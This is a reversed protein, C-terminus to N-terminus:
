TCLFITISTLFYLLLVIYGGGCCFEVVDDINVKKLLIKYVCQMTVNFLLVIKYEETFHLKNREEGGVCYYFHKTLMIDIKHHM